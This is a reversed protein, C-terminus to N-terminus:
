GSLLFYILWLVYLVNYDVMAVETIPASMRFDWWHCTHHPTLVSEAVCVCERERDRGGGQTEREGRERDRGWGTEKLTDTGRTLTLRERGESMCMGETVLVEAETETGVFWTRECSIRCTCAAQNGVCTVSRGVADLTVKCPTVESCSRGDSMVSGSLDSLLVDFDSSCM